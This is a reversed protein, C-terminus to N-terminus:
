GEQKARPIQSMGPFQEMLCNSEVMSLNANEGSKASFSGPSEVKNMLKGKRQNAVSNRTDIQNSNDVHPEIAPSSDARKRKTNSKKGDKQNVQKDWNASDRREQSQSNASRTDLSSPSEHDFSKGGSKHSVSGQYIDHGASSPGVPPRSPAFADIKAMENEALGAQSDKTVGPASSSGVYFNAM